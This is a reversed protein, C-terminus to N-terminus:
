YGLEEGILIVKIRNPITSRRTIVIQSCICDSNYCDGCIGSTACPTKKELRNCNAPAALRKIRQYAEKINATVKNMGLLVVVNKPGFILSSVRNGFGDINVLEGETTIANSSLFYYDALLTQVYVEQVEEKSEVAFRDHLHIDKREKLRALLGCEELTMSGGFAVNDNENLFSLSLNTAETATPCYYGEMQRKKLNSIITNALNEQHIQKPNM